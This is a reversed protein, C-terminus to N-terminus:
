WRKVEYGEEVWVIEVRRKPPPTPPAPPPPPAPAIGARRRAENFIERARRQAEEVGMRGGKIEEILKKIEEDIWQRTNLYEEQKGKSVYAAYIAKDTEEYEKLISDVFITESPPPMEWDFPGEVWNGEDFKIGFMFHVGAYGGTVTLTNDVRGLEVPMDHGYYRGLKDLMNRIMKARWEDVVLWFERYVKSPWLEAGEVLDEYMPPVGFKLHRTRAYSARLKEMWCRIGGCDYDRKYAEVLEDFVEELGVVRRGKVTRGKVQDVKVLSTTRIEINQVLEHKPFKEPDEEEVKAMFTWVDHDARAELILEKEGLTLTVDGYRTLSILWNEVLEPSYLMVYRPQECWFELTKYRPMSAYGFFGPEEGFIRIGDVEFALRIVAHGGTAANIAGIVNAIMRATAPDLRTFPGEQDM